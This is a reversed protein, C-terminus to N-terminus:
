DEAIRDVKARFIKCGVTIETAAVFDQGCECTLILRQKLDKIDIEHKRGCTPCLVETRIKM